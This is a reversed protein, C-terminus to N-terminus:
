RSSRRWAKPSRPAAPFHHHHPAHQQGGGPRRLQRDRQRRRGQDQQGHGQHAQHLQGKRQRRHCGRRRGPDAGGHPRQDVAEDDRAPESRSGHRGVADEEGHLRHQGPEGGRGAGQQLHHDAQRRQDVGLLLVARYHLQDGGPRRLQRDRQRRRGQDQQGRGHHAQYLQGKRQGDTALVADALTLVVSSGYISPMTTAHLSVEAETGGSPTKKVTFATNALNAAAGLAEHFAITLKDGDIRAWSFAPATTDPPEDDDIVTMSASSASGVSYGTGAAVTVTVRGNPEDTTDNQTTVSYIATTAGPNITVTQSGEDRAAVFDSNDADAVSLNVTLHVRPAVNATVTFKAATGETVAGGGTITIVPPTDNTVVQDGFSDTENGDADELKNDAGTTPKTYSVKVSGDTAVVADALTLVVTYGSISPMTTAHLSVEAETGGSPTKKVTFATNALNAAAGLAEHFTITLKDGDISASSFAPALTGPPVDDDNVTVGASSASGVSYGTGAAVTVTVRGNPEDTTDNQTTVSYIATTAGRNITVTQSGEDRAAVFDSNDADAVSLNVTLDASPAVNATVTFKAATGETVAGGGSITIAPPTDNTVVQDSFSGVENDRDRDPHRGVLKNDMGTTPRTYSVKVRGDTALVADALTLVVTSGSISPMTTAHLSVEAETGGSPTKKVTFATNALNAAAGLAEHFTITLKDGNISASSVIPALMGPPVDDSIVTVSASSASGVTYGTGAVVTVTVWGNAEPLLDDVTPLSFTATTAGSNIRVLQSGVAWGPLFSWRGNSVDAVWLNVRLDANPAVNATVTFEAATGETVAGGGSITITRPTNNAVAKDGFSDTENGDTGKIKNDTGTTPKTYSVTVSGDTALVADALTLVVTSGSISPKTTAHLSVEAETGGSPTKKVTFATNALNAAAGLAEHFTITLKDGDISASSFGPATAVVAAGNVRFALGTATTSWETGDSLRWYSDAAISWGAAGSYNKSHNASLEGTSGQLTVSYTTNASLTTTAPATFALIGTSLTAPNTLTAIETAADPLGTVLKVTLDDSPQQSFQVEISTVTYAPHPGTTFGPAPVVWALNWSGEVYANDINSVLVEAAAPAAALLSLAVLAAATILSLRRSRTPSSPHASARRRRIWTGMRQLFSGSVEDAAM